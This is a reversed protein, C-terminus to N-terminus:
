ESRWSGRNDRRMEITNPNSSAPPTMTIKPSPESAGFLARLGGLAARIALFIAGIVTVAMLFLGAAAAILGGVILAPLGSMNFGRGSSYSIMRM